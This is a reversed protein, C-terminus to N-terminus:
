LIVEKHKMVWAKFGKTKDLNNYKLYASRIMMVAYEAPMRDALTMVADSNDKNTHNAVATALAYLTAPDGPIKAANPNALVDDINPLSLYTTKYAIFEGAPGNGVLGAIAEYLINDDPKADILKSVMEWTRYTAYPDQCTKPDFTHLCDPRFRGFAIIMPNIDHVTAWNLFDNADTDVNVHMVRNVIHSPISSTAAKDEKRNGTAIVVSGKPLKISGVQNDILLQSYINQITPVCQPLEDILVLVPDDNEDPWHSMPQFVAEDNIIAPLGKVDLIDTLPGHIHILRLKASEAFQRVAATKATGPAGKLFVNIGAKHASTLLTPLKSIKM